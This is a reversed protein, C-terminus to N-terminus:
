RTFDSAKKVDDMAVKVQQLLELAKQSSSRDMRLELLCGPCKFEQKYLLDELPMEIFFGCEPCPIGPRRNGKQQNAFM